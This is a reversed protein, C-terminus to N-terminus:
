PQIWEEVLYKPSSFNDGAQLQATDTAIHYGASLIPPNPLIISSDSAASINGVGSNFGNYASSFSATQPSSNGHRFFVTTGDDISIRPTRSAVTADTALIFRFAILRWRAGTPVVESIEVGAAPDTGTISRLLGPGEISSENEGGPFFVTGSDTIYGQALRAVIVGEALLSVKVYCVGRKVSTTGPRVTLFTPVSNISFQSTALSRNSNTTHRGNIQEADSFGNVILTLATSSYSEIQIALDKDGIWSPLIPPM